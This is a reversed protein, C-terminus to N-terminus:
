YDLYGMLPELPMHIITCELDDDITTKEHDFEIWYEWYTDAMQAASWGIEEYEPLEELGLLDYFTNLGIGGYMSMARNAEYEAWIVDANTSEFYRGSYFDYFLQKDGNETKVIDEKQEEYEDKAISERVKEGAEKGYLEDVKSKYNKYSQDLLAYASILAAQQRKNLVDAGFICAVTAAGTVVTPIYVPGATKVTEWKTLKEGKKEKANELLTIAKPTAKVAMIATVAVGVAGVCTLITSSNRKLFLQVNM